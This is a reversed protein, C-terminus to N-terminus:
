VAVELLYKQLKHEFEPIGKEVFEVFDFVCEIFKTDGGDGTHLGDHIHVVIGDITTDEKRHNDICVGEGTECIIDIFAYAEDYFRTFSKMQSKSIRGAEVFSNFTDYAKDLRIFSNHIIVFMDVGKESSLMNEEEEDFEFSCDVFASMISPMTEGIREYYDGDEEFRVSVNKFVLKAKDPCVKHVKKYLRIMNWDPM